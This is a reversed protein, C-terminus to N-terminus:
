NNWFPPLGFVKLYADTSASITYPRAAQKIFEPDPPNKLTELIAQAMKEQVPRMEKKIANVKEEAERLATRFKSREFILDLFDSKQIWDSIKDLQDCQDDDYLVDYDGQLMRIKHKCFKGLRGAPCNCHVTMINNEVVFDVKYPESGSSSKALLTTEM